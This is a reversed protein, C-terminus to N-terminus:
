RRGRPGEAFGNVSSVSSHKGHDNNAKSKQNNSPLALKLGTNLSFSMTANEEFTKTVDTWSSTFRKQTCYNMFSDNKRQHRKPAKQRKKAKKPKHRNQVNQIKFKLLDARPIYKHRRMCFKKWYILLLPFINITCDHFLSLDFMGLKVNEIITASVEPQINIRCRPLIPSNLFQECILQAKLHLNNEDISSYKGVNGQQHVAEAQNRYCEVDCWFRFDNILFEAIIMKGQQKKQHYILEQNMYPDISIAPVEQWEEEHYVSPDRGVTELYLEFEMRIDRNKMCKLFKASRKIFAYFVRWINTMKGPQQGLNFIMEGGTNRNGQINQKKTEPFTALYTEGWLDELSKMVCAQASILMSVTVKDPPTSSIERLVQGDFGVGTAAGKSFFQNVIAKIKLQRLRPDEVDKMAQVARWFRVSREFHYHKAFRRFFEFHVPDRLCDILHKPRVMPRKIVAGNKRITEKMYTHNKEKGQQQKIPRATVLSAEPRPYERKSLEALTKLDPKTTRLFIPKPKPRVFGEDDSEDSLFVATQPQRATLRCTQEALKYARKTRRSMAAKLLQERPKTAGDSVMQSERNYGLTLRACLISHAANTRRRPSFELNDDREQRSTFPSPARNSEPIWVPTKEEAFVEVISKELTETRASSFDCDFEEYFSATDAQIFEQWKKNLNEMAIKQVIRLQWPFTLCELIDIDVMEVGFEQMGPVKAFGKENLIYKTIIADMAQQQDNQQMGSYGERFRECEQWYCLAFMGDEDAQDETLFSLFPGAAFDDSRLAARLHRMNHRYQYDDDLSYISDGRDAKRVVTIKEQFNSSVMLAKKIFEAKRKGEATLPKTLSERKSLAQTTNANTKDKEKRETVQKANNRVNSSANVDTHIRKRLTRIPKVKGVANRRKRLYQSAAPPPDNDGNNEKEYDDEGIVNEQLRNDKASIIKISAKDEAKEKSSMAFIMKTGGFPVKGTSKREFSEAAKTKWKGLISKASMLSAINAIPKRGADSEKNETPSSLNVESEKKGLEGKKEPTKVNANSVAKKISGWKGKKDSPKENTKNAPQETQEPSPSKETDVNKSLKFVNVSEKIPGIPGNEDRRGMGHHGTRTTKPKKEGHINIKSEQKVKVKTEKVTEDKAHKKKERDNSIERQLKFASVAKKVNFARTALNTVSQKQPAPAISGTNQRSGITTRSMSGFRQGMTTRSISGVREALGEQAKEASKRKGVITSRLQAVNSQINSQRSYVSTNRNHSMQSITKSLGSLTVRKSKRREVTVDMGPASLGKLTTRRQTLRSRALDRSKEIFTTRMRSHSAQPGQRSLDTFSDDDDEREEDIRAFPDVLEETSEQGRIRITCRSETSKMKTLNMNSDLSPVRSNLNDLLTTSFTVSEVSSTNFIRKHLFNDTLKEMESTFKKDAFDPDKSLDKMRLHLLYRPLWYLCMRSLVRKSIAMCFAISNSQEEALELIKTPLCWCSTEDFFRDRLEGMYVAFDPDGEYYAVFLHQAAVFFAVLKLGEGTESLFKCFKSFRSMKSFCHFQLYELGHAVHEEVGGDEALDYEILARALKYEAYIPSRFFFPLRKRWVWDIIEKNKNHDMMPPVSPEFLFKDQKKRYIMRQGFVPLAMFKNLYDVFVDDQLLNDFGSRNIQVAM